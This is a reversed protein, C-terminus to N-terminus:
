EDFPNGAKRCKYTKDRLFGSKCAKVCRRTIPNRDKGSPCPVYSAPKKDKVCRFKESRKYGSNCKKVCRKSVPNYEKGDQCIPSISLAEPTMQIPNPTNNTKVIKQTFSIVSTPLQNGKTLIHNVYQRKHKDLLGSERMITEYQASLADVNHRAYLAPSIMNTFLSALKAFLEVSIFKGTRNLVYLLAIGVGYSDTTDVSKNLFKDYDTHECESLMVLYSNIMDPGMASRIANKDVPLIQQFLVSYTTWLNKSIKKYYAINNKSNKNVATTYADRNLLPNEWPFSWHPRSSWYQSTKAMQVIDSKRTMFGFDIYNLRNTSSNYVINQPKLDHHMLGNDNFVTLGYFLRSIELWFLEIKKTNNPTNAWNKYVHDAFQELDQGGDKMVLLAYKDLQSSDYKSSQCRDAALRNATIEEIECITPKGLYTTKKKDARDIYGFESMENTANPRTMLKSVTGKKRTARKCKMPPKHVCGYSGKGIVMPQVIDTDSDTDSSIYYSM